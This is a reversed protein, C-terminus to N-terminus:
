EGEGKLSAPDGLTDDGDFGKLAETRQEPTLTSLFGPMITEITEIAARALPRLIAKYADDYEDGRIDSYWHFRPKGNVDKETLTVGLDIADGPTLDGFYDTIDCPGCVKTALMAAVIRELMTSDTM